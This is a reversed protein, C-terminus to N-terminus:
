QRHLIFSLLVSRNNNHTIENTHYIQQHVQLLHVSRHTSCTWTATTTCKTGFKICQKGTNSYWWTFQGTCATTGRIINSNYQFRSTIWLKTPWKFSCIPISFPSKLKTLRYATIYMRHLVSVIRVSIPIRGFWFSHFSLFFFLLLLEHIALM